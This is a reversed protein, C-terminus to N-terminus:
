AGLSPQRNPRRSHFISALFNIIFHDAKGMITLLSSVGVMLKEAILRFDNITVETQHTNDLM